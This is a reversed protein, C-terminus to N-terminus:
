CNIKVLGDTELQELIDLFNDQVNRIEAALPHAEVKNRVSKPVLRADSKMAKFLDVLSTDPTYAPVASQEARRNSYRIDPNEPDFQGNNDTASKINTNNADFVHIHATGPEMNMNRFRRDANKLIISDFGLEQIVEALVHSSILAGSDPDQVYNRDLLHRLDDELRSHEVSGDATVDYLSTLVASPDFDYRDAVTQVAAILPNEQEDMIEYRADQLADEYSDRDAEIDETPLGENDAVRELAQAEIQAEDFFEFWPSREPDGAVFPRETKVFVEMVIEEGGNLVRQAVDSALAYPDIPGDLENDVRPVDQAQLDIEYRQNVESAIDDPSYGDDVLGEFDQELRERLNDLRSTLDPGVGAYNDAADQESSTFYNVAGFQGEKNGRQSADFVSFSHTTGHFAQLVFPGPGSFDTYNIEKGPIVPNDTGAWRKFEPTETQRRNSFVPESERVASTAVSDYPRGMIYSSEKSVGMSHLSVGAVIADRLLGSNVAKRAQGLMVKPVNVAFLQDSGSARSAKRLLAALKAEALVKPEIEMVLSIGSFGNTGVLLVNGTSARAAKFHEALDHESTVSRGLLAHPVSPKALDYTDKFDFPKVDTTSEKDILAYTKHNVIVHGFFPIDQSDFFDRAAQTLRVDAESPTPDGAPHNHLMAVSVGNGLRTAEDALSKWFSDMDAFASPKALSFGAMRSSVATHGVVKDNQLFVYHLTEYRPDRYIQAAVALDEPSAISKGLLSSFGRDEFERSVSLGLVSGKIGRLSFAAEISAAFASRETAPLEQIDRATLGYGGNQMVGSAADVDKAKTSRAPEAPTPKSPAKKALAGKVRPADAPTFALGDKVVRGTVGDPLLSRIDQADGFVTIGGVKDRSYTFDGLPETKRRPSELVEAATQDATRVANRLDAKGRQKQRIYYQAAAKAAAKRAAEIDKVYSDSNFTRDSSLAAKVRELLTNILKFFRSAVEGTMRDAVDLWFEPKHASDSFIDAALEEFYVNDGLAQTGDRGDPSRAAEQVSVRM